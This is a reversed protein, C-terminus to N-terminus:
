GHHEMINSCVIRPSGYDEAHIVLSRGVISTPGALTLEPDTFFYRAIDQKNNKVAYPPIDLFGLKKSTDGMECRSPAIGSCHCNYIGDVTVNYPNYHPGAPDCVTTSFASGTQIHREHIHWPHNYTKTEATGSPYSLEIYVSTDSQLDDRNQRLIIQGQIVQYFTAFATIVRHGSLEINACALPRGDAYYIVLSRGVVSNVGFLSLQPDYVQQIHKDKYQLTGYKGSLDGVAYQDISGKGPPPVGDPVVKLPNYIVAKINPCVASKNGRFILPLEDVGYSYAKKDLQDLNITVLTPDYPSEQRFSVEGTLGNQFKAVAQKPQILYLRSCALIKSTDYESYVIVYVTGQIVDLFQLNTVTYFTRGTIASPKRGVAAYGVTESLQILPTSHLNSCQTMENHYTTEPTDQSQTHVLAWRHVSDRRTGNVYYLQSLVSTGISSQRLVVEGGLPNHFRSRYTKVRTNPQIVACSLRGTESGRLVLTRGLITAPKLTSVVSIDKGTSLQGYAPTLDVYLRGVKEQSCPVSTDAIAPFEHIKWRFKEGYTGGRLFVRITLNRGSPHPKFEVNGLLGGSNISAVLGIPTSQPVTYKVFLLFTLLIHIFYNDM